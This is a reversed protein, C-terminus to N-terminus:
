VDEKREVLGAMVIPYSCFKHVEKMHIDHRVKLMKGSILFSDQFTPPKIIYFGMIGLFVFIGLLFLLFFIM